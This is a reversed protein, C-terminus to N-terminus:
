TNIGEKDRKRKRKKSAGREEADDIGDVDGDRKKRKRDKKKDVKAENRETAAKAGAEPKEKPVKKASAQKGLLRLFEILAQMLPRSGNGVPSDKLKSLTDSLRDDTNWAGRMTEVSDGSITKRAVAMIHRLLDRIQQANMTTTDPSAEPTLTECIVSAFSSLFALTEDGPATHNRTMDRVLEYAQLQRHIYPVGRPKCYELLKQRLGWASASHNNFFYQLVTFPASTWKRSFVGDLYTSYVEEIVDHHGAHSLNRLLYHCCPNFIAAIDVKRSRRIAVHVDQLTKKALTVDLDPVYEKLQGIHNTIVGTAKKSLQAEDRGSFTALDVLPLITRITYNSSPNRQIFTSIFDVVRIKFLSAERQAGKRGQLENARQRFIEALKEDLAMMQDDDMMEVDSESDTASNSEADGNMYEDEMQLAEAVRRRFEPDVDGGEDDSGMEEDGDEDSSTESAAATEDDKDGEDEEESGSKSADEMVEIDEGEEDDKNDATPDRPEVQ